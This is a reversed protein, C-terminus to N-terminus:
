KSSRILSLVPELDVPWFRQDAPIARLRNRRVLQERYLGQYDDVGRMEVAEHDFEAGISQYVDLNRLDPRPLRGGAQDAAMVGYLGELAAVLKEMNFLDCTSRGAELRSKLAGLAVANSALDVARDIFAEPTECIM